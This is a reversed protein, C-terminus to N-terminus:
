LGGRVWVWPNESPSSSKSSTACRGAPAARPISPRSQRGAQRRRSLARLSGAWFGAAAPAPPQGWPAASSATQVHETQLSLGTGAPRPGRGQSISHCPPLLCLAGGCRGTVGDPEGSGASWAMMQCRVGPEECATTAPVPRPLCHRSSRQAMGTGALYGTSMCCVSMHEHPSLGHRWGRISTSGRSWLVCATRLSTAM